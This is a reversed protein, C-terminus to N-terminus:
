SGDFQWSEFFAFGKDVVGNRCPELILHECFALPCLDGASKKWPERLDELGGCGGGGGVAGSTSFFMPKSPPVNMGLGKLYLISM